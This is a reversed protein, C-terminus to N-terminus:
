EFFKQGVLGLDLLGTVLNALVVGVVLVLGLTFLTSTPGRAGFGQGVPFKTRGFEIFQHLVSFDECLFVARFDFDIQIGYVIIDVGQGVDGGCCSM